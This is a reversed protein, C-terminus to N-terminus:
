PKEDVLLVEISHDALNKIVDKNFHKLSAVVVRSIKKQIILESMM